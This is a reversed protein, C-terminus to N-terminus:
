WKGYTCNVIEDNKDPKECAEAADLRLQEQYYDPLLEDEVEYTLEEKDGGVLKKILKLFKGIFKRGPYCHLIEISEDAPLSHSIEAYKAPRKYQEFEPGDVIAFCQTTVNMKNQFCLYYKEIASSFRLTGSRMGYINISVLEMAYPVRLNLAANVLARWYNRDQASYVSNGANIAIEELNM